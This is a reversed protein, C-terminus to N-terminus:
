AAETYGAFVAVLVRTRVGAVNGSAELTEEVAVRSYIQSIDSKWRGFAKFVRKAAAAGVLDRYDTAGGIRASHGAFDAPDDGAAAAVRKILRRVDGTDYASEAGGRAERRFIPARRAAAEGLLACDERWAALLLTYACLPDSAGAGVAAAAGGGGGKAKGSSGGKAKSGGGGGKAAAGRGRREPAHARIPVPHRQGRGEADKVNCFHVTCAAHTDHLEGAAHWTVNAWTLGRAPSFAKGQVRGLEGGRAVMRHAAVAAAWERRAAFSSTRDLEPSGGAAALHRARLGRRRRRQKAPPMGRRAGRTLAPVVVNAEPVLAKIGSDRSREARLASVYGTVTDPQLAQGLRGRQLSGRALCSAAFLGLSEENYRAAEFRGPSGAGVLPLFAVRQPVEERWLEFHTLASRLRDPDVSEAILQRMGARLEQLRAQEAASPTGSFVDAPAAHVGLLGAAAARQQVAARKAEQKFDLQPPRMGAAADGAGGAGEKPARAAAEAALRGRRGRQGGGGGATGAGCGCADHGCDFCLRGGCGVCEAGRQHACGAEGRRWGSGGAAGAMNPLAFPARM